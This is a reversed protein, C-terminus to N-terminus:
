WYSFSLNQGGGRAQAHEPATLTEWEPMRIIFRKRM